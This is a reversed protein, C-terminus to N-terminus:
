QGARKICRADDFSIGSVGFKIISVSCFPPVEGKPPRCISLIAGLPVVGTRAFVVNVRKFLGDFRPSLGNVDFDVVAGTM